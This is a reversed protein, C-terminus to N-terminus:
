HQKHQFLYPLFLLQFLIRVGIDQQRHSSCLAWFFHSLGQIWVSSFPLIPAPYYLSSLSFFTLFVWVRKWVTGARYVHSINMNIKLAQPLSFLAGGRGGLWIDIGEYRTGIRPLLSKVSTILNLNKLHHFQGPSGSHAWHLWLTKILPSCSSWLQHLPHLSPLLPWLSCPWSSLLMPLRWFSSLCSRIRGELRWFSCM